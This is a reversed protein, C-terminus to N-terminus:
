RTRPAGDADAVGREATALREAIQRLTSARRSRPPLRLQPTSRTTRASRPCTSTSVTAGDHTLTFHPQGDEDLTVPGLRSTAPRRRVHACQASTRSAMASVLPDDANLVAIGDAPLPRSSSARPRRSPRPRASSASTRPASTSCSASRRPPRHACLDAIHGVGRAGMEVVLYRTTADARLVTLPVGLENNFSGVPAITPGPPKSSTRSCTRSAPRARRDPSASSRPTTRTLNDRALAALAATVDDVVVCPVDLSKSALVATAGAEIAAAAFEHGDVHEGALAAFLTGPRRGRPLRDRGLRRGPQRRRPRTGGTVEAVHDLDVPIM